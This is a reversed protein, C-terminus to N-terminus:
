VPQYEVHLSDGNLPAVKLTIKNSGTEEYGDDWEQILRIGNLWVSMSGSQYNQSTFFDVSAGNPSPIPNEKKPNKTVTIM